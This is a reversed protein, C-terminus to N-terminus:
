RKSSKNAQNETKWGWIHQDACPFSSRTCLVAVRSGCAPCPVVPRGACASKRKEESGSRSRSVARPVPEPDTRAGGGAFLVFDDGSDEGVSARDAGAVDVAAAAAALWRMSACPVEEALVLVSAALVRAEPEGVAVGVAMPPCFAASERGTPEPLPSSSSSPAALHTPEGPSPSAEGLSRPAVAVFPAAPFSDTRATSAISVLSPRVTKTHRTESRSSGDSTRQQIGFEGTGTLPPDLLKERHIDVVATTGKQQQKM